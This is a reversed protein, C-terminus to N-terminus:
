KAFLADDEDAKDDEDVDFFFVSLPPWSAAAAVVDTAAAVAAIALVHLGLTSEVLNSPPNAERPLPTTVARPAM